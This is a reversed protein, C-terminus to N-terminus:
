VVASFVLVLVVGPVMLLEASDLFDTPEVNAEALIGVCVALWISIGALIFSALGRARMRRFWAMLPLLVFAQLLLGVLVAPLALMIYGRWGALVNTTTTAAVLEVYVATGALLSVIAARLVHANVVISQAYANYTYLGLPCPLTGLVTCIAM